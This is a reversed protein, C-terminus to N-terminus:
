GAAWSWMFIELYCACTMDHMWLTTHALNVKRQVVVIITYETEEIVESTCHTEGKGNIMMRPLIGSTLPFLLWADLDVGNVTLVVTNIYIWLHFVKPTNCGTNWPTHEYVLLFSIISSM